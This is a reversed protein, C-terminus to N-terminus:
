MVLCEVLPRKVTGLDLVTNYLAMIAHFETGEWITLHVAFRSEFFLYLLVEHCLAEGRNSRSLKHTHMSIYAVHAKKIKISTTRDKLQEQRNANKIIYKQIINWTKHPSWSSYSSSKCCSIPIRIFYWIGSHWWCWWCHVLCGSHDVMALLRLKERVMMYM